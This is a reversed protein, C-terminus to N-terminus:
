VTTKTVLSRGTAPTGKQMRRNMERANGENHTFTNGNWVSRSCNVCRCGRDIQPWIREVETSTGGICMKYEGHPGDTKVHPM